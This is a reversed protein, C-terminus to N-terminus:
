FTRQAGWLAIRVAIRDGQSMTLVEPTVRAHSSLASWSATRVHLDLAVTTDNHGGDAFVPQISGGAPCAMEGVKTRRMRSCEHRVRRPGAKATVPRCLADIHLTAPTM